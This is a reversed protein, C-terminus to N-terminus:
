IKKANTEKIEENQCSKTLLEDKELMILQLHLGMVSAVGAIQNGHAVCCFGENKGPWTFRFLAPNGCKIEEMIEGERGELYFSDAGVLGDCVPCPLAHEKGTLALSSLIRIDWGVM